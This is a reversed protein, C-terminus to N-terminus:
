REFQFVFVVFGYPGVPCRGAHEHPIADGLIKRGRLSSIAQQQGVAYSRSASFSEASLAVFGLRLVLQSESAMASRTAMLMESCLKGAPKAM